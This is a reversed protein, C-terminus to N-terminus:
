IPLIPILCKISFAEPCAVTLVDGREHHNIRDSALLMEDIVARTSALFDYAAATLAVSNGDRLFLKAGLLDELNRIRHSVAAQTIGLEIAARTFSLHRATAEFAQLWPFPPLHQSM